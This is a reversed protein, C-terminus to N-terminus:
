KLSPQQHNNDNDDDSRNKKKFFFRKGVGGNISSSGNTLKKRKTAKATSSSSSSSSSPSLLLLRNRNKEGEEEVKVDKALLSSVNQKEAIRQHRAMLFQLVAIAYRELPMVRPKYFTLLVAIGAITMGVYPNAAAVALAYAFLIGGFLTGVQKLTLKLISFDFIPESFVGMNEFWLIDIQDTM